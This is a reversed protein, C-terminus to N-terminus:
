PKRKCHFLTLEFQSNSYKEAFTIVSNAPRELESKIWDIDGQRLLEFTPMYLFAPFEREEEAVILISNYTNKSSKFVTYKSFADETILYTGYHNHDISSSESDTSVTFGYVDDNNSLYYEFQKNQLANM